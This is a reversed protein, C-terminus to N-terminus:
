QAAHDRQCRQEDGTLVAAWHQEVGQEETQSEVKKRVVHPGPISKQARV